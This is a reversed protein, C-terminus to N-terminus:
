QRRFRAARFAAAIDSIDKGVQGVSGDAIAEVDDALIEIDDYNESKEIYSLASSALAPLFGSLWRDRDQSQPIETLAGNFVEIASEIEAPKMRAHIIGLRKKYMAMGAPALQQLLQRATGSEGADELVAALAQVEKLRGRNLLGDALALSHAVIQAWMMSADAFADLLSDQRGLGSDDGALIGPDASAIYGLGAKRLLDRTLALIQDAGDALEGIREQERLLLINAFIAPRIAQRFSLYPSKQKSM